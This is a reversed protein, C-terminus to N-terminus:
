DAPNYTSHTTIWVPFSITTECESQKQYHTFSEL